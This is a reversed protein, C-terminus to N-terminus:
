REDFRVTQIDWDAADPLTTDFSQPEIQAGSQVEFLDITTADGDEQLTKARIPLGSSRDFWLDIRQADVNSQPKPTLGLHVIQSDATPKPDDDAPPLHEIDFREEVPQRKFDLPLPFPGASLDLEATEGEAVLERRTAVRDQGDRDLLWRGDFIYAQDIQEVQKDIMLRDFRVAFRSATKEDGSVYILDGFRTTQEGLLGVLKTMRARARLSKVQGANKELEGLLADLEPAAAAPAHDNLEAQAHVCGTLPCFM